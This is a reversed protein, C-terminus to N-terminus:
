RTRSALRRARPALRGPNPATVADQECPPADQECPPRSPCALRPGACRGCAPTPAPAGAPSPPASAQPADRCANPKKRRAVGDPPKPTVLARWSSRAAFVGYYRVLPFYPPPVLIALRSPRTAIPFGTCTRGARRQDGREAQPRPPETRHRWPGRRRCLRAAGARATEYSWRPPWRTGARCGGSRHASRAGRSPHLRALIPHHPEPSGRDRRTEPDIHRVAEGNGHAAGDEVDRARFIRAGGRRRRRRRWHREASRATPPGDFPVAAPAGVGRL